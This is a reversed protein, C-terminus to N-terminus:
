LEQVLGGEPEQHERFHCCYELGIKLLRLRSQLRYCPDLQEQGRPAEAFQGLSGEGEGAEMTVGSWEEWREPAVLDAAAVRMLGVSYVLSAIDIQVVAWLLSEKRLEIVGNLSRTEERARRGLRM